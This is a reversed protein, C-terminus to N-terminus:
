KGPVKTTAMPRALKQRQKVLDETAREQALRQQEALNVRKEMPLLLGECKPKRWATQWTFCAVSCFASTRTAIVKLTLPFYAAHADPPTLM